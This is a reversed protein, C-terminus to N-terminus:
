DMFKEFLKSLMKAILKIIGFVFGSIMLIGMCFIFFLVWLFAM